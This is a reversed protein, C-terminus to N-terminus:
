GALRSYEDIVEVSQVLRFIAVKSQRAVRTWCPELGSTRTPVTRQRVSYYGAVACAEDEINQALFM